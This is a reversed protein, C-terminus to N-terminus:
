EGLSIDVLQFVSASSLLLRRELDMGSSHFIWLTGSSSRKNVYGLEEPSSEESSSSIVFEDAVSRMALKACPRNFDAVTM